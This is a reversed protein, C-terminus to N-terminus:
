PEDKTQSLIRIKRRTEEQIDYAMREIAESIRLMERCMGLGGLRQIENAAHVLAMERDEGNEVSELLNELIGGLIEPSFLGTTEAEVAARARKLDEKSLQKLNSGMEFICDSCLGELLGEDPDKRCKKCPM